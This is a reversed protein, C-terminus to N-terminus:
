RKLWELARPREDPDGDFPAAYRRQWLLDGDPSLKVALTDSGYCEWNTTESAIYLNDADDIAMDCDWNDGYDGVHTM